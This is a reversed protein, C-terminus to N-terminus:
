SETKRYSRSHVPVRSGVPLSGPAWSFRCRLWRWGPFETALGSRCRDSRPACDWGPRAIRQCSRYRGGCGALGATAPFVARLAGRRTPGSLCGGPVASAVGRRGVQQMALTLLEDAGTPADFLFDFVIAKTGAQRLRDILEAHLSRPWSDWRGYRELSADDVAVITVINSLPQPELLIDRFQASLQGFLGSVMMLVVLVGAAFGILLRPLSIGGPDELIQDRLQWADIRLRLAAPVQRPLQGASHRIEKLASLVQNQKGAEPHQLIAQVAKLSHLRGM